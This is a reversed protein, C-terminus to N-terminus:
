PQGLFSLQRHKEGNLYSIQYSPGAVSESPRAIMGIEKSVGPFLPALVPCLWESPIFKELREVIHFLGVKEAEEKLTRKNIVLGWEDVVSFGAAM